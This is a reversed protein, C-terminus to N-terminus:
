AFQGIFPGALWEEVSSEHLAKERPAGKPKSATPPKKEEPEAERKRKLSPSGGMVPRHAQLAAMRKAKQSAEYKKCAEAHLRMAEVVETEDLDEWL